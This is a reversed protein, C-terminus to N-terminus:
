ADIRIGERALVRQVAPRAALREAHAALATHAAVDIGVRIAWRRLILFYPDAITFHDFAFDRRSLRANMTALHAQAESVGKAKLAPFASEDDSFRAPRFIAAFGTGHVTGSQWVLLSLAQARAWTAAPLLQKEPASDALFSLIAVSETLAGAETVLLPVRGKPNLALYDPQRQDGAMLDLRVAEFPRGIEELVMHAALSCAGPAYFLKV